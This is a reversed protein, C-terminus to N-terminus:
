SCQTFPHLVMKMKKRGAALNRPHGYVKAKKANTEEPCIKTQGSSLETLGM